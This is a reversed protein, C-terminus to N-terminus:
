LVDAPVLDLEKLMPLYNFVDYHEIVQGAENFRLEELMYWTVKRGTPAKGQFEGQHSATVTIRLCVRDQEAVISKVDLHLDPFAALGSEMAKIMAESSVPRDESFHKIDPAWHKIIGELEWRNWSAVMSLALEKNREQASQETLTASM